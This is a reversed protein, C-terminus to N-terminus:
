SVLRLHLNVKSGMFISM